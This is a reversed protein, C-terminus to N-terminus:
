LPQHDRSLHRSWKPYVKSGLGRLRHLKSRENTKICSYDSQSESRHMIEVLFIYGSCEQYGHESKGQSVPQQIVKEFFVNLVLDPEDIFHNAVQFQSFFQLRCQSIFQTIVRD